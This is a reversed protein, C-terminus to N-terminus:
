EMMEILSMILDVQREDLDVSVVVDKSEQPDREIQINSLLGGLGLQGLLTPEGLSGIDTEICAELAPADAESAARLRARISLTRDLDVTATQWDALQIVTAGECGVHDVFDAGLAISVMPAGGDHQEVLRGLAAAASGDPVSGPLPSDCCSLLVYQGCRGVNMPGTPTEIREAQVQALDAEHCRDAPERIPADREIVIGGLRGATSGTVIRGLDATERQDMPEVYVTVSRVDRDITLGLSQEWDRAGLRRLAAIIPAGRSSQRLQAVDLTAVAVARSPILDRVAVEAGRPPPDPPAPPEPDPANATAGGCAALLLALGFSLDSRIIHVRNM